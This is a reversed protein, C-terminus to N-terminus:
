RSPPSMQAVASEVDERKGILSVKDGLEFATEGDPILIQDNRHITGVLAEKPMQVEKLKKGIIPAGEEITLQVITGGGAELDKTLERISEKDITELGYAKPLDKKAQENNELDKGLATLKEFHASAESELDALRNESHLKFLLSGLNRQEIEISGQINRHEWNLQALKSAYAAKTAAKEAGEKVAAAGSRLLESTKASLTSAGEQLDNRIKEWLNM